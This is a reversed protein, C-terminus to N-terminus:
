RLFKVIIGRGAGAMVLEKGDYSGKLPQLVLNREMTM